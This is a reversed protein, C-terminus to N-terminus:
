AAEGAISEPLSAERDSIKAISRRVLGVAGPIAIVFLVTLIMVVGIAAGLPWEFAQGFQDAAINGITLSSPSGVLSPAFYDGFALVFAFTAGTVVGTSILPFEVLFLQKRRSAGLDAAAQLLHNPLREMAAYIPIFAFPMALHTQTLIVSFRSFVLFDLPHDIIGIEILLSNVIGTRGLAIRWGFIRLLYGLWLAIVVTAFFFTRHKKIRFRIFHALPVSLAVSIAAVMAGNELSTFLPNHYIPTEVFDRYAAITWDHVLRYNEIKWLSMAVAMGTPILVFLIIWIAAPGLLILGQLWRHRRILDV